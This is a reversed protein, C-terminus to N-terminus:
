KYWSWIIDLKYKRIWRGSSTFWSGARIFTSPEWVTAVDVTWEWWVGDFEIIPNFAVPSNGADTDTHSVSAAKISQNLPPSPHGDNRWILTEGRGARNTIRLRISFTNIIINRAEMWRKKKWINIYTYIYINIVFGHKQQIIEHSHSTAPAKADKGAELQQGSASSPAATPGPSAPLSDAPQWPWRCRSMQMVGSQCPFIGAIPARQLHRLPSHSSASTKKRWPAPPQSSPRSPRSPRSPQRTYRVGRRRFHITRYIDADKIENAYVWGLAGDWLCRASHRHSPHSPRPSAANHISEWRMQM